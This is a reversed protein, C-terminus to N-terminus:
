RAATHEIHTKVSEQKKLNELLSKAILEYGAANTHWGDAQMYVKGFSEIPKYVREGAAATKVTFRRIDPIDVGEWRGEQGSNTYVYFLRTGPAFTAAYSWVDDRARQDGHTGDDYMALKNPVGNALKPHAGAIYIAKHVAHRGAYVRFIVETEGNGETRSAMPPRLSLREELDHEIRTRARDILVKSDVLPVGQARSVKELVRRYPTDWLENYLLISGAGRGRALEIMEVINEEYDGPSVRTYLELEEYNASQHGERGVWAEAPTGAAAAIKQM